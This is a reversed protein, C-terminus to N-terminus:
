NRRPFLCLKRSSQEAISKLCQIIYVFYIRWKGSCMAKLDGKKRVGNGECVNKHSAVGIRTVLVLEFNVFFFQTVFVKFVAFQRRQRRFAFMYDKTSANKAKSVFSSVFVFLIYIADLKDGPFISIWIFGCVCLQPHMVFSRPKLLFCFFPSFDNQSIEPYLFNESYLILLFKRIKVWFHMM